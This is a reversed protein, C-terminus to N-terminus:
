GAQPAPAMWGQMGAGPINVIAIRGVGEVDFPPRVISGGNGTLLGLRWDLDDVAIYSFWHDPINEFMPGSMPMIGGVMTDDLMVVQYHGMEGMPMANYTWGLTKAYFDMARPADHTMLENWYFTGSKVM